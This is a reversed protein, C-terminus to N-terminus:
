IIIKTSKLGFGKAKNDNYELVVHDLINNYTNQYKRHKNTLGSNTVRNFIL